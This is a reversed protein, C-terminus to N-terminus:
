FAPTQETEMSQGQVQNKTLNNLAIKDLEHDKNREDVAMAKDEMMGQELRAKEEEAELAALMEPEEQEAKMEELRMAELKATAKKRLAKAIDDPTSRNYLEAYQVDDILQMQMLQLLTQNGADILFDESNERKVFARFDELKMDKTIQITRVGKDGVMVALRRENDAYISKGMTAMSQYCQLFIDSLANYFPEQMLSGRQIMLQTVGVLQDSGTSEGKLGENVGTTTQMQQQMTSVMTYMDMTSRSIGGDYKGVANQVGMGKTRLGIPKSQNMNRILEDEGGNGVMDKDYVTGSGMANNTQNEAVSLIRNIIRQPNIMDDIPSLIEGDVMAWVHCKFPFQVNTPDLSEVEQYEVIGHALVIDENDEKSQSLGKGLIEKPIFIAHRLIDFRIKKKKKKGLKKKMKETPPEILDKDTYRPKEEGPFIYNIKTLYPYGFEDMVYGYEEESFDKWYTKFVSVRGKPVEMSLSNNSNISNGDHTNYGDKCYEEIRKIDGPELGDYREVIDSLMMYEVKGQFESDSLDDLKAAPDWFFNESEVPQFVQNGNHEFTEMVGLGSLVLNLATPGQFRPLKNTDRIYKMLYNIRMTYDDVFLNEHIQETEEETRGIPKKTQLMPAFTPQEQALKTYFLMERLSEERRNIARPSISKCSANISMRIANGRYQEVTPRVLNWSAKIRNRPQGSEDMLFSELDEREVWQKNAYFNKNLKTKRVFENHMNNLGSTVAYRGMECDYKKDKNAEVRSPRTDKGIIEGIM